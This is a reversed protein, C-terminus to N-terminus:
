DVFAALHAQLEKMGFPKSLLTVFAHAQVLDQAAQDARGTALLVPVAPLLGRLRPLTGAGGLGPMNMDLIVVDPRLGGALLALAEEGNRALASQHGLLELMGQMSNQILEDDDVLLVTLSGLHPMTRYAGSPESPQSADPSAPFRLIVCTGQGPESLLEMEGQCAKVTSYVLSLGLGTGKGVEKTTFFPDLAKELIEQPMGTGTDQVQVEVQSRGLNRTRLTLTGKAPMADVANVCLNMFAHTLAGADGQILRLDPALELVLRVKSLTTRELLRVEELLIANLDLAKEEASNQRAFSLLSKLMNGGREAAKIITGFAKQAPSGVPQDEIHASALGLIAGLVNNMDHAMGGALSGLSEMKQAQHLQAQLFQQQEEVERRKTVDTVIGVLARLSGDPNELRRGSLHGWFTSGDARLFKREV